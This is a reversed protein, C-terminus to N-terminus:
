LIGLLQYPTHVPDVHRVVRGGNHPGPGERDASEEVFEAMIRYHLHGTTIPIPNPYLRVEHAGGHEADV